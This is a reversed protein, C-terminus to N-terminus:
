NHVYFSKINDHIYNSLTIGLDQIFAWYNVISCFMLSVIALSHFNVIYSYCAQVGINGNVCSAEGPRVQKALM